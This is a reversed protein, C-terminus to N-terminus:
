EQDRKSERGIFYIPSGKISFSFYNRRKEQENEFTDTFTRSCSLIHAHIVIVSHAITHIHTDSKHHFQLLTMIEFRATEIRQVRHKSVCGCVCTNCVCVDFHWTCKFPFDRARSPTTTMADHRSHSTYQLILGLTMETPQYHKHTICITQKPDTAIFKSSAVMIFSFDIQDFNETSNKKWIIKFLPFFVDIM